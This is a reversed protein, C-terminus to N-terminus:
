FGLMAVAVALMTLLRNKGREVVFVALVFAVILAWDPVVVKDALLIGLVYPVLM